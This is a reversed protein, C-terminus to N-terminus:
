SQSEGNKILEKLNKHLTADLNTQITKKDTESLQAIATALEPIYKEFLNIRETQQIAKVTKRIHGALKRGVEQLALKMEKLIEPYHAIAEKSESTFPVWVSVMHIMLIVPGSPLAGRSQSLGYNKWATTVIAKNTACAGQQYLLPVRNAFRIVRILDDKEDDPTTQAEGGYALGVEIQFPNGRYVSPPRTTAAYFEANIEKKLGKIILDEGIPSLCNTQPAMIKTERIAKLLNDAEQTPIREPKSKIDVKAKDCILKAVAPSVRSFDSTLFSGLNKSKTMRLMKILIGLEIGHPHPKIEKPEVPLEKTARPFEIVQGEPNKYAVKIHPNAIATQKLYEDVSQKGKQYKAELEIEIKTGHETLWEIETEKIIDPENKQTNINLEYYHTPKKPSIRSTIRIPKGTTLQGYMGAASIGIGQQGRSQKMTHFKSGYLLKAFIKPIQEKVIGPGNDQVIVLFRDEAKQTVEVYIDPLIKAEECADLSNDVAEKITTLLAKRPNDFGLLHRNKTFFESVSIERQKKALEVATIIEKKTNEVM